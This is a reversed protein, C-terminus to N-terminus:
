SDLGAILRDRALYTLQMSDSFSIVMILADDRQPFHQPPLDLWGLAGLALLIADAAPQRMVM